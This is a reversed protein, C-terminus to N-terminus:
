FLDLFGFLVIKMSGTINPKIEQILKDQNSLNKQKNQKSKKIIQFFFQLLPLFNLALFIIAM